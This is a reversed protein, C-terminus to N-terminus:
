EELEDDDQDADRLPVPSNLRFVKGPPPRRVLNQITLKLSAAQAWNGARSAALWDRLLDLVDVGDPLPPPSQGPLEFVPPEPEPQKHHVRRPNRVRHASM